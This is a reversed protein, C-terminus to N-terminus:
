FLEKWKDISNSSNAQKIKKELMKLSISIRKREISNTRGLYNDVHVSQGTSDVIPQLVANKIHSTFREVMGKYTRSTMSSNKFADIALSEIHYGSLQRAEPLTANLKKFLKIIPVVKGGNEQNVSTLKEAFKRPKIVNSWENKGPKAIKYGTSTKISPLLQIEYGSSFKVTVALAGIKVETRPLREKIHNAFYRLVETPRANALSSKNIQVLMDIDSLGETYTHKSVSGGFKLELIGELDKELAKKLTELHKNIQETDRNNIDELLSKLYQNVEQEYQEVQEREIRENQLQELTKSPTRYGGGSGGM